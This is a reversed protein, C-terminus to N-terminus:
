GYAQFVYTPVWKKIVPSSLRGFELGPGAKCKGQLCKCHSRLKERDFNDCEMYSCVYDNIYTQNFM